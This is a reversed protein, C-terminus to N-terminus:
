CLCCRDFVLQISSELLWCKDALTQLGEAWGDVQDPGLYTTGPVSAYASLESGKGDLLLLGAWPLRLAHSLIRHLATSKGSRTKGTVLLRM